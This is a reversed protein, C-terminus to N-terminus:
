KGIYINKTKKKKVIAYLKWMGYPYTAIRDSTQIRKDDNSRLAIKNVEETYVVHHDSKLRQQSKLVIKNNIMSKQYNNFMLERKIVCKKIGKARENIIKNKEYYEDDCDDILFSYKKARLGFFEGMIKGGLEDKFM